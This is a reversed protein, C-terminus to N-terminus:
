PASQLSMDPTPLPSQAPNEQILVIEDIYWRGERKVFVVNYRGSQWAPPEKGAAEENATASLSALRLLTQVRVTASWPYARLREVDVRYDFNNVTFGDYAGSTLAADSAIFEETFYESLDQVSGDQLICAARKQMGDVLIIYINSTYLASMFAGLALAVVAAILLLLRLMYWISRRAVAYKNRSM